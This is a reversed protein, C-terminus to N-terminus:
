KWKSGGCLLKVWAEGDHTHFVLKRGRNGEVDEAVVPIGKAAVIARAREVNKRGLHYGTRMAEIVCAGGFIKALVREQRAGLSTMKDLVKEIAGGAFRPSSPASGPAQPLLFHCLGGIALHPDFLGVAVCSGLITTIACPEHSVWVQGPHLYIGEIAQAEGPHLGAANPGLLAM